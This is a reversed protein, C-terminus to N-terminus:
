VELYHYPQHISTSFAEEGSLVTLPLLSIMGWSGQLLQRRSEQCEVLFERKGKAQPSAVHGM